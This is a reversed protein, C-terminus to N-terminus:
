ACKWEAYHSFVYGTRVHELNVLGLDNFWQNPMSYSALPSAANRWSDMCIYRFSGEYGLQRLRRHLRTPKKWLRLQVSRLRRRLWAALKKFERNANAIRFYQSFGRLLPNLQKIVELLPKGGNRRTVRKLKGKFTSMKKPQIRSYHSGIEIGLFKVGEGSHAIHSKTENVTLKLQKELVKTAQVQANEAGKRSRCFILIDDAYRVIRHGRKRMEQDFADLYINAILPSIVGGQPSGIKTHQWEGDVMVGSKLFQKILELVSSDTVRKKISKLILEHDLKDFCKSLDMDVVHQMGYRRIFMTAKNIADHCSRNPRYGFSSPHFQEEFIPTLLDNLAQQVVRDRVTPIGLLRVGGDDKPIEVRRVPQPTYRKTKLELLLQDLNDSLNQAYDSLSQRDIGAAGKAKWVKKFGKYLREKHLLHGYLSYYVRM